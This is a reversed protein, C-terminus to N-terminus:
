SQVQRNFEYKITHKIAEPLSYPPNFGTKLLRDSNLITHECFKRVRISSIAFKKRSCLSALDFTYGLLLGLRFPMRLYRGNKGLEARTTEVLEKMSLDPKDTFNFLHSGPGLDIIFEMFAAINKVYGLSKQNAGNGIMAFRGSNIQKFLNYVNGRNNEGFIVTPRLIVLHHEPSEGSWKLFAEEAQLKSKGYDNFPEPIMSEEVEGKDLGYLAGTSTYVLRKVGNEKAATIVNKSGEVNVEYYLSVPEVNDAHEAALNYIIDVDLTAQRVKDLDRIDGITCLEPFVESRRLDLISVSYGSKLLVAILETGIFGSGGIVLIKM